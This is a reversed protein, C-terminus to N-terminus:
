VKLGLGKLRSGIGQVRLGLGRVGVDQVKPGASPVIFVTSAGAPV